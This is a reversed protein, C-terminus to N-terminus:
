IMNQGLQREKSLTGLTNFRWAHSRNQVRSLQEFCPKLFVAPRPIPGSLSADRDASFSEPWLNDGLRRSNPRRRCHRAGQIGYGRFQSFDRATLKLCFSQDVFSGGDLAPLGHRLPRSPLVPAPARAGTKSDRAIHSRFRSPLRAARSSRSFIRGWPCAALSM